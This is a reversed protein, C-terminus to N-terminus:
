KIEPEEAAALKKVEDASNEDEDPQSLVIKTENVFQWSKDKLTETYGKDPIHKAFKVLDAEQLIEKIIVRHSDDLHKALDLLIEYTTEEMASVFYRGEIYTRLIESLRIYFHKFENKELLDSKFLKQLEALAIEHAPRPKPPPSFIYGKQQKQKYARYGLYVALALLLLVAIMSYLFVYDFPLDIPPKIDKLEPADEGSLLSKVHIEIPDAKIIKYQRSSDEPFYAIPFPPITYSGTDFVSIKFDFRETIIGDKKLPDSFNYEKIEFMGLNLGEGPKEIRLNEDRKIVISYTIRDGIFIESTDVMSQVEIYPTQAFLNFSATLFFALLFIRKSATMM